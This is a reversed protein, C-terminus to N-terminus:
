FDIEGSLSLDHSTNNLSKQISYLQNYLEQNEYSSFRYDRSQINEGAFKYRIYILNRLNSKSQDPILSILFGLGLKRFLPTNRMSMFHNLREKATLNEHTIARHIKRNFARLNQDSSEKNNSNNSSKYLRREKLNKIFFKLKHFYDRESMYPIERFLREKLIIMFTFITNFKKKYNQPDIENMINQPIITGLKRKVKKQEPKTLKADQRYYRLGLDFFSTKSNLKENKILSFFSLNGREKLTRYTVGSRREWSSEQIPYYYRHKSNQHDKYLLNHETYSKSGEVKVIVAALKISAGRKKFVNFGKFVRHIRKPSQDGKVKDELYIHDAYEYTSILSRDLNTMGKINFAARIDKFKYTSSLISNYAKRSEEYKLDIIYDLVFQKGKGKEFEPAINLLPHIKRVTKNAIEMAFINMNGGLDAKLLSARSTTAIIKLRVVSGEMKLVQINFQGNLFFRLSASANLRLNKTFKLLSSDVGLSINMNAPFSVFDGNKLESLVKQATLPIKNLGYPLALLAEKKSKFQRVFAVSSEKSIGLSFPSEIVGPIVDGSNIDAKLSWKDIRTQHGQQYSPGVDYGYNAALGTGNKKNVKLVDFDFKVDTNLFTNRIEEKIVTKQLYKPVRAQASFVLIMIFLAVYLIKRV